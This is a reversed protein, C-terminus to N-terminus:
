TNSKSRTRAGIPEEPKVTCGCSLNTDLYCTRPQFCYILGPTEDHVKYFSTGVKDLGMQYLEMKDLLIHFPGMQNLANIM